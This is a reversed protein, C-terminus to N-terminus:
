CSRVRIAEISDKGFVGCASPTLFNRAATKRDLGTAITRRPKLNVAAVREDSMKIEHVDDLRPLLGETFLFGAALDIDDGPTRMTVTLPEGDVRIELPEEVAAQDDGRDHHVTVYTSGM